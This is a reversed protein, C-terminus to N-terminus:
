LHMEEKSLLVVLRYVACKLAFTRRMYSLAPDNWYGACLQQPLAWNLGPPYLSVTTGQGVRLDDNPSQNIQANGFAVAAVAPAITCSRRLAM